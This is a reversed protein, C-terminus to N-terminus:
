TRPGFDTEGANRRWGPRNESTEEPGNLRRPVQRRETQKNRFQEQFGPLLQDIFSTLRGVGTSLLAARFNDWVSSTRGAFDQRGVESRYEFPRGEENVRQANMHDPPWNRHREPYSRRKPIMMSLLLGGGFAAGALLWPRQRFQVRWDFTTRVKQQLEDIHEGLENRTDHIHREIQDTREGM